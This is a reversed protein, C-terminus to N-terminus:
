LKLLVDNTTRAVHAAVAPDGRTGGFSFRCALLWCRSRRRSPSVLAPPTSSTRATGDSLGGPGDNYIGSGTILGNNNIGHAETLTWYAGLTPNTADLWADLDVATNGADTQWLTAWSGGGAGASRRCDSSSAPTTSASLRLQGDRRPHGPRGDRRGLRAHRHLPLRPCRHRRDHRSFGAVQGADNIAYGASDDRRPHGPRGDRRGLRAHRHLPLRSYRRRRDHRVCGAVQGADNIASASRQGDRRAHGPRGHRRRSGPTGTYRFAHHPPTAPRTAIAPSRGPTTSAAATAPRGASPAWTPWRAARQRAHRHLPLRSLGRRRDNAVRRRGARRRQHRLRRQGDRRPHGPRGDRRGSGPTGNYRFAHMPPRRRDHLSYGAVQGADNIGYGDSHTGGLTGLNYIDGPAPTLWDAGVGAYLAIACM